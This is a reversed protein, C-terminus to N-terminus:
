EPKEVTYRLDTESPTGRMQSKFIPTPNTSILEYGKLVFEPYFGNSAPEYVTDGYVEVDLTTTSQGPTFVLTGSVPTYDTFAIASNDATSYDM